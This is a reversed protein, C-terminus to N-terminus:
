MFQMDTGRLLDRVNGPVPFGLGSDGETRITIMSSGSKNPLVFGGTYTAGRALSITDGPQASNIAAQVDRSCLRSGRQSTLGLTSSGYAPRARAPGNKFM